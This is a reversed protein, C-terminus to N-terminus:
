EKILKQFFNPLAFSANHVDKNYYKCQIKNKLQDYNKSNFELAANSAIVFSWYGSPYTTVPASFHEVNRFMKKLSRNVKTITEEFFFPSECQTCLIGDQKLTRRVLEFFSKGFLKAAMGVPDTSDVIVIDYHNKREKNKLFKFGDEVFINVRKDSLSNALSPLYKKSLEIVKGDIECLDVQELYEHKLCQQVTGGDGGGIVLVKKPHKASFIPIHAIAEHYVFEDRETLMVKKDLAMLRGHSYTEFIEILQFESKMRILKKKVEFSLKLGKYQIESFWAM